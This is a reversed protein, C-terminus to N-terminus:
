AATPVNMTARRTSRRGTQTRAKMALESYSAYKAASPDFPIGPQARVEGM